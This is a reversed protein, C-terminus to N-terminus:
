PVRRQLLKLVAEGDGVEDCEDDTGFYIAWVRVTLDAVEIRSRNVLIGLDDFLQGLKATRWENRPRGKKAAQQELLQLSESAVQMLLAADAQMRARLVNWDSHTLWRSPPTPGDSPRLSSEYVRSLYQQSPLLQELFDLQKAIVRAADELMRLSKIQASRSETGIAREISLELRRKQRDGDLQWHLQLAAEEDLDYPRLEEVLTQYLPNQREDEDNNMPDNCRNAM